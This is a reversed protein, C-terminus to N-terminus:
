KKLHNVVGDPDPKGWQRNINIQHKAEIIGCIEDYSLGYSAAAGFLLIFCDAFEMRIEPDTEASSLERIEQLLHKLKSTVTAQGFTEQQWKTIANFQQKNM